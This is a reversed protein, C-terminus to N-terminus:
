GKLYVYKKAGPLDPQAKLTVLANFIYQRVNASISTPNPAGDTVYIACIALGDICTPKISTRYYSSVINIAGRGDYAYWDRAM